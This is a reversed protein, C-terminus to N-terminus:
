IPVLVHHASEEVYLLVMQSPKEDPSKEQHSELQPNIDMEM